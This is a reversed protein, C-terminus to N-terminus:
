VMVALFALHTLNIFAVLGHTHALVGQGAGGWNSIELMHTDKIMEKM